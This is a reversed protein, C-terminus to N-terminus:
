ARAGGQLTFATREIEREPEESADSRGHLVQRNAIVVITGADWSHEHAHESAEALIEVAARARKDMPIMCGADYRVAAREVAPSLFPRDGGRVLFLGHCLADRQVDNLRVDSLRLLRTSVSSSKRSGLVLFDAPEEHHAGDTHLPQPGLGHIASLSRPAASSQTTPRLVSLQESEGRRNPLFKWNLARGETVIQSVTGDSVTWGNELASTLLQSANVQLTTNKRKTM